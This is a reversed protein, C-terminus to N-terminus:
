VNNVYIICNMFANRPILIYYICYCLINYLYGLSLIFYFLFLPFAMAFFHIACLFKKNLLCRLLMPKINTYLFSLEIDTKVEKQFM